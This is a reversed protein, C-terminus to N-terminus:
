MMSEQPEWHVLREIQHGRKDRGNRDKKNRPKPGVDEGKKKIRALKPLGKKLRRSKALTMEPPARVSVEVCIKRPPRNRKRLVADKRVIISNVRKLIQASDKGHRDIARKERSHGCLGGRVPTVV